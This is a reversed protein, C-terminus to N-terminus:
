LWRPVRASYANFEPGFQARLACEEPAIQFRNLYIVFAPAAPLAIPSGLWVLEGLLVFLFGLYMPNRTFRYVGSTVLATTAGPNMPNVTTRARRFSIVGLLSWGGGLLGLAAAIAPLQAADLRLAPFAGATLWAALGALLTFAVPPIRLALTPQAAKM